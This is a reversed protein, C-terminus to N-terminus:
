GIVGAELVVCLLKGAKRLTQTQECAQACEQWAGSTRSRSVESTEPEVCNCSPELSSSYLKVSTISM